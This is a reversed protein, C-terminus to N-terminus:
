LLKVNSSYFILIIFNRLENVDSKTYTLVYALTWPIIYNYKM